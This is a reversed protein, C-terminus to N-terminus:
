VRPPRKLGNTMSSSLEDGVFAYQQNVIPQLGSLNEPQFVMLPSCTMECCDSSAEGSKDATKKDCSETSAMDHGSQVSQEIGANSAHHAAMAQQSLLPMFALSVMVCLAVILRALRTQNLRM